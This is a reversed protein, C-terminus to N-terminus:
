RALDEEVKLIAASVGIVMNDESSMAILSQLDDGGRGRRGFCSDEGSELGRYIRCDEM